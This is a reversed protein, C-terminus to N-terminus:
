AFSMPSKPVTVLPSSRAGQSRPSPEHSIIVMPLKTGAVPCDKLAPVVISRLKVEAAPAACPYWAAGTMAPGEADAPIDIFKLGAAQTMTAVCCFMSALVLSPLHM